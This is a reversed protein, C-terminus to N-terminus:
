RFPPHPGTPAESDCGGVFISWSAPCRGRDLLVGGGCDMRSRGFGLSGHGDVLGVWTRVRGVPGGVVSSPCSHQRPAPDLAHRAVPADPELGTPVVQHRFQGAGVALQRGESISAQRDELLEIGQAVVEPWSCRMSGSADWGIRGLQWQRGCVRLREFQPSSVESAGASRDEAAVSTGRKAGQVGEEVVVAVEHRALRRDLGQGIGHAVLDLSAPDHADGSTGVLEEVCSRCPGVATPGFGVKAIWRIRRDSTVGTADVWEDGEIGIGPGASGAGGRRQVGRDGVVSRGGGSM